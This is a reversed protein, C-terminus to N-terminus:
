EIIFAIRESYKMREALITLEDKNASFAIGFDGGGAGSPKYVCHASEVEKRLAIHPENYFNLNSDESFENLYRGFRHLVKLLQETPLDSAFSEAVTRLRNIHYSFRKPAEKRWTELRAVYETTSASVGTWIALMHLNKPLAFPEVTVDKQFRIATDMISLAIDAGSGKGNQFRRHSSIAKELQHELPLDPSLLKVLSATLAASSGLGLKIDGCFFDHTDLTLSCGELQARCDLENVVANLLPQQEIGKEMPMHHTDPFKMTLQHKRDDSITTVARQPVPTLVAPGGHLVSYEGILFLKGPTSTM